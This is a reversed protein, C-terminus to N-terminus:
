RVWSSVTVGHRGRYEKKQKVTHIYKTDIAGPVGRSLSGTGIVCLCEMHAKCVEQLHPSVTCM